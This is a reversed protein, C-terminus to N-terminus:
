DAGADLALILDRLALAIEVLQGTDVLDITDRETHTIEGMVEALRTSTFAAAPVGRQIFLSHDSQVWPEGPVMSEYAGLCRAITAELEPPCGYLSWATAGNRFGADDINAAFRIRDLGTRQQLWTVEGIASYHDEGNFAVLEVRLNHVAGALLDALLLLTVVGAANDLAGPTTPKADVHACIVVEDGTPDGTEAVPNWGTSPRCSSDIVLQLTEGALMAVREGEEETLYVSPIQFDGDEFLPTPYLAAASQPSRATAGLVAAPRAADVANYIRQHEEFAVFPYNRPFLAEGAVARRLLLLAGAPERGALAEVEEVTECVILPARVSCAPSFPGPYVDFSAEAPGTLTAGTATWEICTFEQRATRWGSEAWTSEVYATAARNGESGVCRNGVDVCLTRLATSARAELDERSWTKM